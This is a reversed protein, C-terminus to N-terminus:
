RFIANSDSYGKRNERLDKKQLVLIIFIVGIYVLEQVNSLRIM